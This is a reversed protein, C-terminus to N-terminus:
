DNYKELFATKLSYFRESSGKMFFDDKRVEEMHDLYAMLLEDLDESM